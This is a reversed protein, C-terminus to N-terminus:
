NSGLPREEYQETAARLEERLEEIRSQTPQPDQASALAAALEQERAALETTLRDVERKLLIKPVPVGTPANYGKVYAEKSSRWASKWDFPLLRNFGDIVNAVGRGILYIGGGLIALRAFLINMLQPSTGPHFWNNLSQWNAVLGVAVEALGYAFQARSNKVAYLFIAGVVFACSLAIRVSHSNLATTATIGEVFVVFSYVAGVMITLLALSSVILISLLGKPM